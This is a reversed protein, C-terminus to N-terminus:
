LFTHTEGGDRFIDEPEKGNNYEAVAKHKFDATYHINKSTVKSVYINNELKQRIEKPLTAM